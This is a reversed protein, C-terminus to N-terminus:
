PDVSVTDAWARAPDVSSPRGAHEWDVVKVGLTKLKRVLDRWVGVPTAGDQRSMTAHIYAHGDATLDVQAIVDPPDRAEFSRGASFLRATLRTPQLHWM